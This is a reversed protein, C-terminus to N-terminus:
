INAATNAACDKADKGTDGSRSSIFEDPTVDSDESKRIVFWSM